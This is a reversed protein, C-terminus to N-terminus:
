FLVYFTFSKTLSLWDEAPCIILSNFFKFIIPRTQRLTREWQLKFSDKHPKLSPCSLYQPFQPLTEAEHRLTDKWLSVTLGLFVEDSEWTACWSESRPLTWTCGFYAEVHPKYLCMPGLWLPFSVSKHPETSLLGSKSKIVCFEEYLTM